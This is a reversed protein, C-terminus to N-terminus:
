VGGTGGVNYDDGNYSDVDGYDRDDQATGGGYAADDFEADALHDEEQAAPDTFTVVLDDQCQACHCMTSRKGRSDDWEAAMEQARTIGVTEQCRPCAVQLEKANM